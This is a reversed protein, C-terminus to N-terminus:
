SRIKLRRFPAGTGLKLKVKKGLLFVKKEKRQGKKVGVKVQLSSRTLTLIFRSAV